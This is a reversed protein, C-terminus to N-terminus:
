FSVSKEAINHTSIVENKLRERERSRELRVAFDRGHQSVTNKNNAKYTAMHGYTSEGRSNEPVLYTLVQVAEPWFSNKRSLRSIIKSGKTKKEIGVLDRRGGLKDGM